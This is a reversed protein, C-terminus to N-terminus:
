FHLFIYEYINFYGKQAKSNLIVEIFLTEKFLHNVATLWM